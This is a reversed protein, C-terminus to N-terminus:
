HAPDENGCRDEGYVVQFEEADFLNAEMIHMNNDLMNGYCLKMSTQVETQSVDMWSSDQLTM